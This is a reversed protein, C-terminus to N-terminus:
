FIVGGGGSQTDGGVGGFMNSGGGGAGGGTWQGSFFGGLPGSGSGDRPDYGHMNAFWESMSKKNWMKTAMDMNFEQVKEELKFQKAALKMQEGFQSQQIKAGKEKFAMEKDFLNKSFGRQKSAEMSAFKQSGSREQRAFKQSAAREQRAFDQSGLREERAFDRQKQVEEQQLQAGMREAELGASVDNRAKQQQEGLQSQLKLGAGSNVGPGRALQRELEEKQQQEQGTQQQMLRQNILDFRRNLTDNAQQAM